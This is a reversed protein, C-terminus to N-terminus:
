EVPAQRLYLVFLAAFVLDGAALLPLPWSIQGALWPALASAVATLKGIIGLRIYPRYRAPDRAVLGYAYGFLVILGGALNILVQNTGAIPDLKLIPGLWPRLFLLSLGVAVNFAAAIGFLWAASLRAPAVELTKSM